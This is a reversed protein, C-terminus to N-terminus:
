RWDVWRGDACRMFHGPENLIPVIGGHSTERNRDDVCQGGPVVPPAADRDILTRPYIVKPTGIAESGSRADQNPTIQWTYGNAFRVSQLAYFAQLRAGPTERAVDVIQDATLLSARVDVTEGPGISIPLDETLFLRVPMAGGAGRRELAALFRLGSVRTTSVNTVTAAQSSGDEEVIPKMTVGSGDQNPAYGYPVRSQAQPMAARRPSRAASVASVQIGSVVLTVLAIALASVRFLSFRPMPEETLLRRVRTILRPGAIGQAARGGSIAGLAALSTLAEVYRARDGCQAVADDDCCFERAERVRRSLWV